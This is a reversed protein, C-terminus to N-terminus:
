KVGPHYADLQASSTAVTGHHEYSYRIIGIGPVYWIMMNDGLTQYILEWGTGYKDSIKRLVKWCYFGDTRRPDDAAFCDGIKIPDELYQRGSGVIDGNAIGKVLTEAEPLTKVPTVWLGKATAVVVDLAPKTAPEYWALQDPFGSVIAIRGHPSDMADIVRTEWHIVARKVQSPNVSTWSVKATYDWSAGKGLADSDRCV